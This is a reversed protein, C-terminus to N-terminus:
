SVMGLIAQILSTKGSGVSGCVGVLEGKALSITIDHLTTVTETSFGDEKLNTDSDIDPALLEQSEFQNASEDYKKKEFPKNSNLNEPDELEINNSFLVFSLFQCHL